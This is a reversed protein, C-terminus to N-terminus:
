DNTPEILLNTLLSTSTFEILLMIFSGLVLLHVLLWIYLFM